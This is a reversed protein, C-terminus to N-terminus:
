TQTGPLSLIVRTGQGERSHFDISGNHRKVINYTVSLGIGTGGTDRKTTFFPDFIKSMNNQTIGIGEDIVEITVNGGRADRSSLVKIVQNENSLAQCANTLLNIMVQQLQQFNGRIRPIDNHLSYEFRVTSKKLLNSVMSISSEVVRNVDVLEGLYGEDKRSFDKLDKVIRAIRSSGDAIGSLMKQLNPKALTYPLGGLTQSPHAAFYEDLIPWIEKFVLSINGAGMSISMNPNNVEHAVGSVLIGLSAMKDAQLLQQQHQLEKEAAEKLETIDTAIGAFRYVENRRNQIPFSRVHVWRLAGDPRVLRYEENFSRALSFQRDRFRSKKDDPHIRKNWSTYDRYIAERPLEWMKEFAPNIYLIAGTHADVLWFVERLNEAIQRFRDESEKLAREAKKRETIDEGSSLLGTVRGELDRLLSNHWAIMRLNGSRTLVSNEFYEPAGDDRDLLRRSVRRIESRSPSPICTDFWNEGLIDSEEYGLVEGGKRNIMTITGEGDLAVLMVGAIDLYQQARDKERRLVGEAKKRAEVEQTLQANAGALERTRSIVKQELTDREERLQDHLEKIRLVTNLRILLNQKEVPKTLYDDCGVNFGHLRDETTINMGTLLVVPIYPLSTTHRIRSCVEYGDIDPMNIDLLVADPVEANVVELAAEGNPATLVIYSPNDRQIIRCIVNLTIDEDDVVLVKKLIAKERMLNFRDNVRPLHGM